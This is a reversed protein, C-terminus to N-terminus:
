LMKNAVFNLYLAYSDARPNPKGAQPIMMGDNSRMPFALGSGFVKTLLYNDSTVLRCKNDVDFQSFPQKSWLPVVRQEEKVNIGQTLYGYAVIVLDAQEVQELQEKITPCRVLKVRKEKGSQVSKYLMRADGRLGTFSYLFGKKNSFVTTNYDTYGDKQANQVQGYFVKIQDRYVIKIDAEDFNPLSSYDFNTEEYKFFGYCKCICGCNKKKQPCACCAACDQITKFVADPFKFAKKRDIVDNQVTPKVHTNHMMDAPGNLLMWAASFGSHSGGLIVIKKIKKEKITDV